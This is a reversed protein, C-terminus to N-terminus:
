FPLSPAIFHRHDSGQCLFFFPLFLLSSRRLDVALMRQPHQLLAPSRHLDVVARGKRPAPVRGAREKSCPGQESPMLRRSRSM